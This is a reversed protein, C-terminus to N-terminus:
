ILEIIQLKHYNLLHNSLKINNIIEKDITIFAHCEKKIAEILHFMDDDTLKYDIEKLNTYLEIDIISKSLKNIILNQSRLLEKFIDIIYQLTEDEVYNGEVKYATAMLKKMGAPLKFLTTWTGTSSESAIRGVAEKVSMGGAPEFYFLVKLDTKKPKYKRDIFSHYWEVKKTM